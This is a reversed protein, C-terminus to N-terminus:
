SNKNTIEQQDTLIFHQHKQRTPVWDKRSHGTWELHEHFSNQLHGPYCQLLNILYVM